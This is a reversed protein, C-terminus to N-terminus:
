QNNIYKDDQLELDNVGLLSEVHHTLEHIIVKKIEYRLDDIDKYGYLTIISGYYLLIHRGMIMDRKYEGLVYGLNPKYKSEDIINLGILYKFADEPIEERIEDVLVRMEDISIM